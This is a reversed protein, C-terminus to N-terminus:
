IVGGKWVMSRVTYVASYLRYLVSSVVQDHSKTMRVYRTGFGSKFLTFGAWAHKKDHEEPLSGWLDLTKAGHEKVSQIVHWMLYQTAPIHRDKSSSGSYPYYARDHWFFIEYAAHPKGEYFAVFIHAIGAASLIDWITKHYKRTHGHYQQRGVTSFYLDSFIQFGEDNSMEQVSVGAQEAHRVSYRTSKKFRKYIEETSPTLDVEQNWETFLPHASARMHPLTRLESEGKDAEAYPEWKIFIIKEKKAWDQLFEVTMKDPIGSRPIYGIFYSIKPLKHITMQYVATLTDGDYRGFRVVRIGTAKRVEGWAYSQMPHMALADFANRDISDLIQIRAHHM